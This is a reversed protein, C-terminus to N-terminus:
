GQAADESTVRLVEEVSTRGRLANLLGSRRLTIMGEEIATRKLVLAPEGMLILRRLNDSMYLAELVAFRGSYGNNCRSCGIAQFLRSKGVKFSEIEDRKFGCELLRAETVDAPAKCDPCLKRLLRQASALIVTSTVLFPDVGMDILRTITYASDNTHLTSLVLHGTLAARTAIQVTELDRMEGIMVTDPDQRLISRLAAAFTMGRKPSVLVQNVGELQYEVPDEVTVVNDEDTMVARLASYLTTTKGSGTPGTVLVMGFPSALAKKFSKLTNEEFGLSDLDLALNSTDLVRIVIKEGHITPLTSIRLDVARGPMHVRMKGDQPTRREAIDLQALVKIRSAMAGHLRKPPDQGRHKFEHLVGDRRFRVRLRKEMPEIHIDSAREMVAQRIILNVLKVVPSADEDFDDEDEAADDITSFDLEDDSVALDDYLEELQQSTKDYVKAIAKMIAPETSVVTRVECSTTLRIDDLKVIDFPNAVAVTLTNGIRSLPLVRYYKSMDESLVRLADEEITVRTLDVPPLRMEAAVTAILRREDICGRSILLETYSTESTASAELAADADDSDVGGRKVLINRLRKNFKSIM